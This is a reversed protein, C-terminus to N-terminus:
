PLRNRKFSWLAGSSGTDSALRGSIQEISKTLYHSYPMWTVSSDFLLCNMGAPYQMSSGPHAIVTPSPINEFFDAMWIYGANAAQDIRGGCKEPMQTGNWFVSPGFDHLFSSLNYSYGAWSRYGASDVEFNKLIKDLGATTKWWQGTITPCVFVNPSNVYDGKGGIRYGRLLQGLPYYKQDYTGTVNPEWMYAGYDYASSGTKGRQPIFGNYDNAYGTGGYGLQKLNSMCAARHSMSKANKLAPLLMAALIAIIAIVVLLEILTFYKRISFIKSAPIKFSESKM